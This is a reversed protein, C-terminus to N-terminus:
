ALGKEGEVHDFAAAIGEIKRLEGMRSKAEVIEQLQKAAKDRIEHEQAVLAEYAHQAALVTLWDKRMAEFESKGMLQGLHERKENLDLHGDGIIKEIQPRLAANKEFQKLAADIAVVLREAADIKQEEVGWVQNHVKEARDSLLLTYAAFKESTTPSAGSKKPNLQAHVAVFEHFAKQEADTLPEEKMREPNMSKELATQLSERDGHFGELVTVASKNAERFRGEKKEFEGRVKELAKRDKHITQFTLHHDGFLAEAIERSDEHKGRNEKEDRAKVSEILLSAVKFGEPADRLDRKFDARDPLRNHDKANEDPNKKQGVLQDVFKTGAEREKPKNSDSNKGEFDM